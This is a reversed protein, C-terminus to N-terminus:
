GSPYTLEGAEIRVPLRNQRPPLPCSAYPTFVCPPNYAENFDLVVRGGDDPADFWVYRGGGYTEIGNTEDGFQVWFREDSPDGVADLRLERGDVQFVVAGPSPWDAVSGDVDAIPIMLPLSLWGMTVMLAITAKYEEKPFFAYLSIGALAIGWCIALAVIRVWGSLFVAAFPTFSAAILVFIMSHDLRQMRQKWKERWPFSHYLASATYLAILSLGFVTVSFVRVADPSSRVILLAMGAASVVAASGHLFGRVPHTMKGLMMRDTM